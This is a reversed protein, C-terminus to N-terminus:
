ITYTVLVAWPEKQSWFVVKADVSIQSFHFHGSKLYLIDETLIINGFFIMSLKVIPMHFLVKSFKSSFSGLKIRIIERKILPKWHESLKSLHWLLLM